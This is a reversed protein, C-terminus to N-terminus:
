SKGHEPYNIAGRIKLDRRQENTLGIGTGFNCQYVM